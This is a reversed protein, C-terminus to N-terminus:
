DFFRFFLFFGGSFDDGVQLLFDAVEVFYDGAATAEGERLVIGHLLYQLFLLLQFLLDTIFSLLDQLQRVSFLSHSIIQILPLSM